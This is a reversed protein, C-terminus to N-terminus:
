AHDSTRQHPKQDAGPLLDGAGSARGLLGGVDHARARGGSHDIHEVRLRQGGRDRGCLGIHDDVLQGVQGVYEVAVQQGRRRRAVAANAAFPGAIQHRRGARGANAPNDGLADGEDIRGARLRM